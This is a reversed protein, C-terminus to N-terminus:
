TRRAKSTRNALAHRAIKRDDFDIRKGEVEQYTEHGKGAILILTQKSAQQITQTIAEKRDTICYVDSQHEFGPMIDDIIAEPDESRPNDSTVTILDAYREAIAAMEPRKTRDRDGGCGFVAHLSQQETKLEAMTKLVNKLADPTHAYDVLVLPENSSSTTVKELRGEAGTTSNLASIIKSPEFGLERCILFSEVVNYANFIGMLPSEIRHNGINLVLGDTSNRSIQCEIDSPQEFSFRIKKASCDEIMFEAQKDDANVVASADKTLSNFLRKKSHAYDEFNEHYDLHDHSLNTFVATDFSLGRTRLQDLAHSSVEMALHTVGNQVMTKMDRAIEIPDATTMSSQIIDDGIRKNVTGLLGAKVGLQQFLQYCLTAVTTKGNTGTIGIIKMQDAPNGMFAQALPGLLSRTDNVKLIQTGNSAAYPKESIVVSAGKEIADPIFNHGDNRIGPVAIFVDGHGLKRSDQVLRGLTPPPTGSIDTPNCISILKNYTL